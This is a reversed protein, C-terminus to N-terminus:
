RQGAFMGAIPQEMEDGSSAARIGLITLRQLYHNGKYSIQM